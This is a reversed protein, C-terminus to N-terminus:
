GLPGLILAMFRNFPQPPTTDNSDDDDDCHDTDVGASADVDEDGDWNM